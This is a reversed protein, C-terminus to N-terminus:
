RCVVHWAAPLYSALRVSLRWQWAAARRSALLFGNHYFIKIFKFRLMINHNSTPSVLCVVYVVCVALGTLPCLFRM